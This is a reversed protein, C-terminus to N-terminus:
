KFKSNKLFLNENYEDLTSKWTAICNSKNKKLARQVNKHMRSSTGGTQNNFVTISNLAPLCFVKQDIEILCPTEYININNLSKYNSNLILEGQYASLNISLTKLNTLSLKSLVQLQRVKWLELTDLNEFQQLFGLNYTMPAHVIISNIKHVDWSIKQNPLYLDSHARICLVKVGLPITNFFHSDILINLEEKSLNYKEAMFFDRYETIILTDFQLGELMPTIKDIFPLYDDRLDIEVKTLNPKNENIYQNIRRCELLQDYTIFNVRWQLLFLQLEIIEENEPDLLKLREIDNKLEITDSYKRRYVSGSSGFWEGIGIKMFNSDMSDPNKLKLKLNISRFGEYTHHDTESVREVSDNSCVRCGHSTTCIAYLFIIKFLDTRM